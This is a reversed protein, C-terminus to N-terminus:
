SVFILQNVMLNEVSNPVLIYGPLFKSPFLILIM